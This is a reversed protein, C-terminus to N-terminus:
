SRNGYDPRNLIATSPDLGTVPPKKNQEVSLTVGFIAAAGLLMGILVSAGAPVVFRSM